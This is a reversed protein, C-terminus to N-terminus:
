ASTADCQNNGLEYIRKERTDKRLVKFTQYFANNATVVCLGKDLIIFPERITETIEKYYSLKHTLALIRNEQLVITNNIAKRQKTDTM